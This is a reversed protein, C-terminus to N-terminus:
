QERFDSANKTRISDEEYLDRVHPVAQQLVAKGPPNGADNVIYKIGTLVGDV